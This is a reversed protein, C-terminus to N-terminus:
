QIDQYLLLMFCKVLEHMYGGFLRNIQIIINRIMANIPCYKSYLYYAFGM